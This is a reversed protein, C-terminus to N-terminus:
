IHRKNKLRLHQIEISFFRALTNKYLTPLAVNSKIKSKLKHTIILIQIQQM